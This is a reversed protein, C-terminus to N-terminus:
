NAVKVFTQLRNMNQREPDITEMYIYLKTNKIGIFKQSGFM